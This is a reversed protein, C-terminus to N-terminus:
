PWINVNGSEGCMGIIDASLARIQNAFRRAVNLHEPLEGLEGPYLLKKAAEVGARYPM